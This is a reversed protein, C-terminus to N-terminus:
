LKVWISFFISFWQDIWEVVSRNVPRIRTQKFLSRKFLNHFLPTIIKNEDYSFGCAYIKKSSTISAFMQLLATWAIISPCWLLTASLLMRTVSADFICGLIAVHCFKQNESCSCKHQLLKMWKTESIGALIFPLSHICAATYFYIVLLFTRIPQRDLEPLFQFSDTAYFCSWQWWKERLLTLGSIPKCKHPTVGFYQPTTNIRSEGFNIGESDCWVETHSEGFDCWLKNPLISHVNFTSVVFIVWTKNCFCYRFLSIIRNTNINLVSVLKICYIKM